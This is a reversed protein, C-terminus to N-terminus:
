AKPPWDAAIAFLDHVQRAHFAQASVPSLPNECLGLAQAKQFFGRAPLGGTTRGVVLAARLPQLAKADKEMLTELAATLKAIRGPGDIQLQEALQGYTRTIRQRACDDLAAELKRLM